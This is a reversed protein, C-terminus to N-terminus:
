SNRPLLLAMVGGGITASVVDIGLTLTNMEIHLAGTALMACLLGVSTGFLLRPFAKWPSYRARSLCLILFGVPSGLVSGFCAGLFGDVLLDGLILSATLHQRNSFLLDFIELLIAVICGTSAAILLAVLFRELLWKGVSVVNKVTAGPWCTIKERNQHEM